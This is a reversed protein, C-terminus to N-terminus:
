ATQKFVLYPVANVSAPELPRVGIRHSREDGTHRQELQGRWHKRTSQVTESGPVCM